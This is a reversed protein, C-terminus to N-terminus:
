MAGLALSVWHLMSIEVAVLDPVVCMYLSSSLWEKQVGHLDKVILSYQIYGDEQVPDKSGHPLIKSEVLLLGHAVGLCFLSFMACPLLTLADYASRLAEDQLADQLMGTTKKKVSKDNKLVSVPLGEENQEDEV